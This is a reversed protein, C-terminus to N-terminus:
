HHRPPEKHCPKVTYMFLYSSSMYYMDVSIAVWWEVCGVFSTCEDVSVICTVVDVLCTESYPLLHKLGITLGIPKDVSPRGHADIGFGSQDLRSRIQNPDIWKGLHNCVPKVQTHM